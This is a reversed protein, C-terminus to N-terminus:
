EDLSRAAGHDAATIAPYLDDYESPVGELANKIDRIRVRLASFRYDERTRFVYPSGPMRYPYDSPANGHRNTNLEAPPPFASLLGEEALVLAAAVNKKLLEIDSADQPDAGKRKRRAALLSTVARACDDCLHGLDPIHMWGAPHWGGDNPSDFPWITRSKLGARAEADLHSQPPDPTEKKCAYCNHYGIAYKVEYSAHGTRHGDAIRTM